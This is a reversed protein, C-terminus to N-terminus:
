PWLAAPGPHGAPGGAGADARPDRSPSSSRPAGSGCPLARARWGRSAGEARGVSAGEAGHRGPGGGHPDSERVLWAPGPDFGRVPAAWFTHDAGTCMVLLLPSGEGTVDYALPQGDALTLSDM